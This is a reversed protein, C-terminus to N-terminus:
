SDLSQEQGDARVAREWIQRLGEDTEEDVSGFFQSLSMRVVHWDVIGLAQSGARIKSDYLSTWKALQREELANNPKGSAAIAAGFLVCWIWLLGMWSDTTLSDESGSVDDILQELLWDILVVDMEGNGMELVLYFFTAIFSTRSSKPDGNLIRPGYMGLDFGRAIEYDHNLQRTHNQWLRAAQTDTEDWWGYPAEAPPLANIDWISAFLLAMITPKYDPVNM